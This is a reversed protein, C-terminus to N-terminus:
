KAMAKKSSITGTIAEGARTIGDIFRTQFRRKKPGYWSM